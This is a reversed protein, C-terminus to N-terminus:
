SCRIPKSGTQVKPHTRASPPTKPRPSFRRLEECQATLVSDVSSASLLVAARLTSSSFAELHIAVLEVVITLGTVTRLVTVIKHPQMTHM